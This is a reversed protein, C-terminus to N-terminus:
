NQYDDIIQHIDKFQRIWPSAGKFEPPLTDLAQRAAGLNKYSGFVLSFWPQGRFQSKFYGAESAIGHQQMFARVTDVNSAAIVQITFNGSPQQAVWGASKGATKKIEQPTRKGREIRERIPTSPQPRQVLMDMGSVYDGTAAVQLVRIGTHYLGLRKLQAPSIRLYYTGSPVAPIIFFGDWASAAKGVVDMRMNLLELELGGIGREQSGELLYITGDIESTMRVPFDVTAVHGPRPVMSVGETSPEWQPDFLTSRDVSLDVYEGVPLRRVHAIGESDTRVERRSGNITFGADPVPEEDSDMLGNGNRDVFMRVSAAGYGAMPEASALWSAARPERGLGLSLQFGVAYNGDTAYRGTVGLGYRGVTKSLGASWSTMPNLLNRNVGASVRYGDSLEYDATLALGTVDSYPHVSYDISGRLGVDYLRRSLLLSGTLQEFEGLQRWDLTNSISTRYAYASLRNSIITNTEGSERTDHQAEFTFPLRQRKGVPVAGSVRLEDRTSIPDTATDFEDSTFDDLFLRGANLSVGGLRTQLGLEGLRGGDESQFYRSSLGFSQWFTRIGLGGYQKAQGDFPAEIVTANASINRTLGLDLQVLSRADGNEDRHESLEYRFEGPRVMSQDLSYSYNEVRRQGLPGNFILQFDNRGYSLPLDEFRYQGDSGAQQYDVLANNYYLEVDWGPPLDGDFTQRDFQTPQTLPRNSIFIGEGAKARVVNKVGPSTYSGLSYSRAQLPGLLRGEPDRRGLTARVSADPNEESATLHISSELGLLDGALFLTYRADSTAQGDTEGLQAALTQDIFPTDFMRYPSHLFPYQPAQYGGSESSREAMRERRLRAQLPLEESTRVELVQSSHNIKLEVPFWREILDVAIYLDDPEQMALAADFTESKGSRTVAANMLNLSFSHDENLIFGSATGQAPRTQVAITLLRSLEGLPLLMQGNRQYAPIAGSLVNDDLRVELLFLEFGNTEGAAPRALSVAALGLLIALRCWRLCNAFFM